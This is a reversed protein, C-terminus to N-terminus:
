PTSWAQSSVGRQPRAERRQAQLGVALRLDDVLQRLVEVVAVLLQAGVARGVGVRSAAEREVLQVSM